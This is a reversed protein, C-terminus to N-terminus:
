TDSGGLRVLMGGFDPSEMRCEEYLRERKLNLQDLELGKRRPHKLAASRLPGQVNLCNLPQHCLRAEFPSSFVLM